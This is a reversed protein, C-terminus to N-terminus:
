GSTWSSVYKLVLTNQKYLVEKTIFGITKYLIQPIKNQRSEYFNNKWFLLSINQYFKWIELYSARLTRYNIKTLHASRIEKQYARVIRGVNTSDNHLEDDQIVPKVIRNKLMRTVHSNMSRGTWDNLYQVKYEEKIHENGVLDFSTLTTIEATEMTCMTKIYMRIEYPSM